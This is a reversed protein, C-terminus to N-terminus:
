SAEARAEPPAAPLCFHFVSGRGVVSDVWIRGNHRAVIERCIYLGLGLGGRDHETGAHAQSFRRFLLAQKEAAIGIGSDAVSTVVQNGQRQVRVVIDSGPRSFKGANDILNLLVQQIREPDATVFAGRDAELVLHHDPVVRHLSSVVDDALDAVDFPKPRLQLSGVQLRSVELLEQVLRAVRNCQQDLLKFIETQDASGAQAPFRQLTQVYAKLTTIPTKLEHAAMSLFEDRLRELRKLETVDRLVAVALTIHNDRHEHVPAVSAALTVPTGDRRRILIESHHVTEGRLARAIAHGDSRIPVGDPTRVDFERGLMRFPKLLEAPDAAGFLEVAARNARITDGNEDVLLIGDAMCEIISQSRRECQRLIRIHRDILLKLFVATTLVFFAGKSMELGFLSVPAYAHALLDTGLIWASAVIGYGLVTRWRPLSSDLQSHRRM